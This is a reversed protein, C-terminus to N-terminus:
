WWMSAQLKIVNEDPALTEAPYAPTVTSGNVYRSYQLVVEENTTFGSRLVLRPSLVHFSRTNDDLDPQVLDYRFSVGLWPLPTYTVDGGLKLKQRAGTFDPDDSAVRTYLGFTGIQLDPGQGYFEQPHWLLRSLSFTYQWLVADITGTGTAGEGFYNDRLSWGEFSHLIELAGALRLPDQVDVHAVGLYGDGFRHGLWKADAGIVTLQGDIEDAADADDNWATMHHLGVVLQDDLSFGVHVHHLLTTGQQVDGPYPFYPAEPLGPVLPVVNLKAGVGHDVLLTFRDGLDLYASVTEGAVHTAGFLYTDYKGADYRGAAGYRYAFAGVYLDLGGRAGFLDSGDVTVFAQSIGQQASVDRYSADGIDYAALAVQATARGQRYSLWLEAWPGGQLNTYRWDTYASDPTQPPVHAGDGLGVRLPVRLFGAYGFAGAQRPGGGGGGGLTDGKGVASPPLGLGLRERPEDGEEARAAAPATAAVLALTWLIRRPLDRNVM